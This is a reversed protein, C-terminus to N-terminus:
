RRPRALIVIVQMPGADLHWRIASKRALGWCWAERRWWSVAVIARWLRFLHFSM